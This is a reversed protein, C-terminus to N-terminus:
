GGARATHATRYRRGHGLQVEPLVPSRGAPVHHVDDQDLGRLGAAGLVARHIDVASASSATRAALSCCTNAVCCLSSM